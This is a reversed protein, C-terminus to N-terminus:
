LQASVSFNTLRGSGIRAFRLLLTSNFARLFLEELFPVMTDKPDLCAGITQSFSKKANKIEDKMEQSSSTLHM